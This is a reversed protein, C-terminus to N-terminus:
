HVQKGHLLNNDLFLMEVYGTSTTWVGFWPFLSHGNLWNDSQRWSEGRTSRYLAVLAVGPNPN